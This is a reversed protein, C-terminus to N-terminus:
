RELSAFPNNRPQWESALADAAEVAQEFARQRLILKNVRYAALEVDSLANARTIALAELAPPDEALAHTVGCEFTQEASLMRGHLILETHHQRPISYQCIGATGGLLPIGTIAENLGYRSREERLALRVDAALYLMLGGAIAHGASAAVVPKPFLFFRRMTAVFRDTTSRLEDAPLRPLVKLDLGASFFGPRGTVILAHSEDAEAEDLLAGIETLWADQMANAGGDDLRLRGLAGSREYSAREGV